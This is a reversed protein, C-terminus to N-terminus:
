FLMLKTYSSSKALKAKGLDNKAKDQQAGELIVKNFENCCGHNEITDPFGLNSVVHSQNRMHTTSKSGKLSLTTISLTQNMIVKFANNITSEINEQLRLLKFAITNDLNVVSVVM